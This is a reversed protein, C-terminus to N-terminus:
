MLDFRLTASGAIPNPYVLLEGRTNQDIIGLDFQDLFKVLAMGYVEEGSTESEMTGAAIIKRDDDPENEYIIDSGTSINEIVKGNNEFEVQLLGDPNSIALSRDFVACWDFDSASIFCTGCGVIKGDPQIEIGWIRDTFGGVEIVAIGDGSFTEDLSGDQNLRMVLAREWSQWGFGAAVIKGDDQIEVDWAADVGEALDQIVIGDEGFDTDPSGDANFRRLYFDEGTSSDFSSIGFYGATVIKGDPQIAVAKAEDPTTDIQSTFIRGDAFNIDPAGPQSMASFAVLLVIFIYIFHKM